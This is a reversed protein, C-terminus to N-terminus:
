RSEEIFVLVAALVLLLGLGSDRRATVQLQVESRHAAAYKEIESAAAGESNVIATDLQVPDYRISANPDATGFFRGDGMDVILWEGGNKDKYRKDAM